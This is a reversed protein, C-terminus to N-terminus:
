FNHRNEVKGKVFVEACYLMYEEYKIQSPHMSHKNQYIPYVHMNTMQNEDTCPGAKHGAM